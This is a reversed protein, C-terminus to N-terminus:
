TNRIDEVVQWSPLWALYAYDEMPGDMGFSFPSFYFFGAIVLSGYAIYAGIRLSRGTNTITWRKTITDFYYTLIMLAFYLTPLYHHAYVVRSMILFPLFHLGWALLPYFAAMFFKDRKIPDPLVVCQRQWKLILFTIHIILACVAISSPWVSGPSGLLFYKVSKESWECLRVGVNLTPWQWASSTMADFKEPNPVLANNTAMMASNLYIFNKLFSAKPYVFDKPEPLLENEHTDINWWTRKDSKSTHKLCVVEKQRFGWEPLNKGSQALYCGLISNKIRFSTSLPHLLTPDENGVQEAIEIIWNDKPDGLDVDGYASVEWESKVIPAPIEHTHLNKGTLRHMIRYMEGGKVFELTANEAETSPAAGRVRQFFWENNADGYGYTTVQQQESGEPYPQVHSHLLAGGLVQNKISIISSGLAVDRPGKGVTTGNLSAQFLSPMTYDGPGSNYLLDFHIKFCLLFVFVPIVILGFIRALWHYIYAKWSVSKETLLNWLEVITYTGVVTIIFLGVMKVSVACGLNLGTLCLWLWWRGSFPFKRMTHFKALCFYSSVTFFLLMSDLLIFRGLTAYSNEFAVLTTFLWVSLRSFGVTRGTFYALPVCLSSFMAQFLRMKVYNINDPYVEGSPFDWSGNYGALYGSLGVLMKGLPPHVDHYYEHRLYYSGFKGFHAEDWVVHDNFGIKYMRTFMGLLTFVIPMVIPELRSVLQGKKNKENLNAEDMWFNDHNEFEEKLMPRRWKLDDDTVNESYGTAVRYPM